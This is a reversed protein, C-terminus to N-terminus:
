LHESLTEPQLFRTKTLFGTELGRIKKQSVITLLPTVPPAVATSPFATAVSRYMHHCEAGSHGIWFVSIDTELHNHCRHYLQDGLLINMRRVFSIRGTALAIVPWKTLREVHVPWRGPFWGLTAHHKPVPYWRSAEASNQTSSAAARHASSFSDSVPLTAARSHHASTGHTPIRFIARASHQGNSWHM